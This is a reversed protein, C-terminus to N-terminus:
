GHRVEGRRLLWVFYPAGILSALLGLPLQYPFAIMRALWDALVMLVAGIIVAAVIQRRPERFGAFRAMHPAM